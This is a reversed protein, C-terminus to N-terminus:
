TEEKLDVYDALIDFLEDVGDDSVHNKSLWAGLRGVITTYVPGHIGSRGYVPDPMTSAPQKHAAAKGSRIAEQMVPSNEEIIDSVKEAAADMYHAEMVKNAAPVDRAEVAERDERAIRDHIAQEKAIRDREIKAEAELEKNRKVREEEAVKERAKTEEEQQIRQREVEKEHKHAKIRANVVALYSEAPQNIITALDPFLDIHKERLKKEAMLNIRVTTCVGDLEIKVRALESDVADQWSAITRKNRLSGRFDPPTFWGAVVNVPDIIDNVEDIYKRYKREAADLVRDKKRDKEEKVMKEGHAQMKQLISDLAKVNKVYLDLSSFQEIIHLSRAGVTSRLAKVAVNMAHKDEFDQDTELIVSMQQQALDRIVPICEAINSQVVGNEVQETIVPLAMQKKPEITEIRAELVFEGLDKDFQKWGAILAEARGPVAEYVMSVRKDATGDSVTFLCKTVGAVLMQQELQWYYHAILMANRVNEALAENWDKHEWVLCTPTIQEEIGDFSAWLEVGDIERRGCLPFLDTMEDMETFPRAMAEHKHGDDFLRQTFDSVPNAIWGKKLALLQSRSSFKSENMMAPAESACRHKLRLLNWEESGPVVDVQEMAMSVAQSLAQSM